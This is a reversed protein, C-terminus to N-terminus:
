VCTISRIKDWREMFPLKRKEFYVAQQLLGTVAITGSNATENSNALDDLYKSMDESVYWM